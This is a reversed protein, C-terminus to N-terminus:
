RAQARAALLKKRDKLLKRQAALPMALVDRTRKPLKDHVLTNALKLHEELESSRLVGSRFLM